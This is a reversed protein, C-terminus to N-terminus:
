LPQCVSNAIKSNDGNLFNVTLNRVTQGIPEIENDLEHKAGKCQYATFLPNRSRIFWKKIKPTNAYVDLVDDGLIMMVPTQPVNEFRALVSTAILDAGFFPYALPSSPYLEGMHPPEPNSLLSDITVFGWEGPVPYVSLGPALLVAGSVKRFAPLGRQLMRYAILGGTSWGVLFLPAESKIEPSLLVIQALGELSLMDHFSLNWCDTKGHSPYDFSIVRFGSETMQTFLPGHNDARDSFGTLFLVDATPEQSTPTEVVARLQCGFGADVTIEKAEVSLAVFSCSMLFFGVRFLLQAFLGNM